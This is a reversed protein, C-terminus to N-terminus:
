FAATTLLCSPPVKVKIYLLFLLPGFISGQPVGNLGLPLSSLSFYTTHFSSSLLKYEKGLIAGTIAGHCFFMIPQILCILEM